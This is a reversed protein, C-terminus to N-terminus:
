LNVIQKQILHSKLEDFGNVQISLIGLENAANINSQNDDFFLIKNPEVKLEDIVHQFSCHDPKVKHILHSSFTHNFCELLKFESQMRPWHLENCNSLVAIKYNKRLQKLLEIVGSYIGKPWRTFQELLEISSIDLGLENKLSNAFQDANIQGKEFDKAVQSSFWETIQFQTNAPLWAAPIPSEGLDVLVGGLDFLIVEFSANM